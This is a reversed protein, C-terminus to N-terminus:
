VLQPPLHFFSFFLFDFGLLPDLNNEDFDISDSIERLHNVCVECAKEYGEAIRVPHIGRDLINYFTFCRFFLTPTFFNLLESCFGLLKEAQQLLAGALVVV